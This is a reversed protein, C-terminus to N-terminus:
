ENSGGGKVIEEYTEQFYALGGNVGNTVANTTITAGSIADIENDSMAGSKTYAFQEVKKNAFQPKLVEEARMGLGPTEGIALISIGNLTGDAQIGMMFQIDGGYGEHDTVTLVIGIPAHSGDRAIMVTEISVQAFGLNTLIEQNKTADMGEVEEFELADAFVEQCAEQRAKLEQNEIPAKTVEYVVGLACGAILTILFLILTDKLMSKM